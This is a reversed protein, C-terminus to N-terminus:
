INSLAGEKILIQEINFIAQSFFDNRLIYDCKEGNKHEDTIIANSIRKIINEKSDGRIEMRRIMEDYTVHIFVSFVMDGYKEKIQEYGNIDVIAFVSDFENLKNELEKKSLCYEASSYRNYEVKEIRDFEEKPVFYYSEGDVEGKRMPRTTHSVAEPIGFRKKIENGITTKGSGSPGVIVIIRKMVLGGKLTNM